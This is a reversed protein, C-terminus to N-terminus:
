RSSGRAIAMEGAERWWDAPEMGAAAAAALAAAYTAETVRILVVKRRADDGLSPRGAGERKGGVNREVKRKRTM